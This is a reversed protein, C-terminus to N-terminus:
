TDAEFSRLYFKIAIGNIIADIDLTTLSLQFYTCPTYM